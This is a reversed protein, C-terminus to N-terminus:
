NQGQSSDSSKAEVVSRDLRDFQGLGPITLFIVDFRFSLNQDTHARIATRLEKEYRPNSRFGFHLVKADCTLDIQSTYAFTQFVM